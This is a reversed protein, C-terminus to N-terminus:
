FIAGLGLGIGYSGFHAKIFYPRHNGTRFGLSVIPHIRSPTDWYRSCTSCTLSSIGLGIEFNRKLILFSNLKWLFGKSTEITWYAGWGEMETWYFMGVGGKISLQFNKEPLLIREYNMSFNGIAVLFEGEIYFINKGLMPEPDEQASLCPILICQFLLILFIRM